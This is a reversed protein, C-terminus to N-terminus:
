NWNTSVVDCFTMTLTNAPDKFIDFDAGWAVQEDDDIWYKRAMRSCVLFGVLNKEREPHHIALVMYRLMQEHWKRKIEPDTKIELISVIFHDRPVGTGIKAKVAM